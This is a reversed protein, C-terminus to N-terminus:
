EDFSVKVVETTPHAQCTLVYGRELEDHELAYNVEMEAKGETIRAKCTACVGGKCAFPLDAGANIAADLITQGPPLEYKLTNNDITAYITSGVAKEIKKRPAAQGNTQGPTTFLEFHIQSREVGQKALADKVGNIMEEPGCLFFEDVTDVPVLKSFFTDCKEANIRGFFLDNGPHERSMVYHVSMRGLYRNKLGEIEELFIVDRTRTNGYFLTFESNPETDLVTKMLSMVPTIGSGAAFAVYHKEQDAAIPVTFNGMPVMVDMAVGAKLQENAFTSFKGGELKKVAVRLDQESPAVCISYTRRVEEGNMDTKLTLHQGPKFQYDKQLGEPVDFSISVCDDTEQRIERIKLAHFKAM